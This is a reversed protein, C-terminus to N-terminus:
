TSQPRLHGVLPQQLLPHNPGVSRFGLLYLAQKLDSGPVQGGGGFDQRIIRVPREIDHVVGHELSRPRQYQVLAKTRSSRALVPGNDQEALLGQALLVPALNRKKVLHPAFAMAQDIFGHAENRVVLRLLGQVKSSGQDIFQGPPDGALLSLGM